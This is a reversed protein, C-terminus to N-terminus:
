IVVLTHVPGQDQGGGAQQLVTRGGGVPPRELSQGGDIGGDVDSGVLAVDVVAVDDGGGPDRGADVHGEVEDVPQASLLLGLPHPAHELVVGLRGHLEASGHPIALVM